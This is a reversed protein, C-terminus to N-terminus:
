GEKKPVAEKGEKFLTACTKIMDVAFILSAFSGLIAPVVYVEKYNSGQWWYGFVLRRNVSSGAAKLRRQIQKKASANGLLNLPDDRNDGEPIRLRNLEGLM